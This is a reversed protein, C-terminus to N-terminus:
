RTTARTTRTPTTIHLRLRSRATARTWRCTSGPPPAGSTGRRAASPSGWLDAGNLGIFETFEANTYSWFGSLELWETPKLLAELEFGYIRAKGANTPVAQVPILTPDTLQRQVDTYSAYYAAVNTRLLAEGLRWDAKLGAEVDNVKEPRFPIALAKETTGRTGFGGTRYGHRTALYVLRDPAWRYELSLNYTPENFSTSLPLFCSALPVPTEPTAPNGDTDKTFRCATQTRSQIRADREDWNMRLGATLALGDLIADLKYTGQGYVAYSTNVAAVSTDSWNPFGLM